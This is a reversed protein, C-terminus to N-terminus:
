QLFFVIFKSKKNQKKFCNTRVGGNYELENPWDPEGGSQVGNGHRLGKQRINKKNQKQIKKKFFFFSCCEGFHFKGNELLYENAM